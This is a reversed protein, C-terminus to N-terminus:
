ISTTTQSQVKNRGFCFWDTSSLWLSNKSAVENRSHMTIALCRLWILSFLNAAKARTSCDRKFLYQWLLIRNKRSLSYRRKHMANFSVLSSATQAIEQSSFAKLGHSFSIQRANSSIYEVLSTCYEDKLFFDRVNKLYLQFFRQQSGDLIDRITPSFYQTWSVQNTWMGKEPIHVKRKEFM